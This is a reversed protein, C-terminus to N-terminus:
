YLAGGGKNCPFEEIPQIYTECTSPHSKEKVPLKHLSSLASTASPALLARLSMLSTQMSNPDSKVNVNHATNSTSM